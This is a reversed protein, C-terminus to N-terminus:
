GNDTMTSNLLTSGSLHDNSAAAVGDTVTSDTLLVTTESTDTLDINMETHLNGNAAIEAADQAPDGPTSNYTPNHSATAVSHGVSHGVFTFPQTSSGTSPAPVNSRSFVTPAVPAAADLDSEVSSKFFWESIVIDAPWREAILLKDVDSSYICLRFAQRDNFNIDNRRRRSKATFLSVIDIQMVDTIFDAMESVSVAASVNDICFVSKKRYAPKVATILRRDGIQDAGRNGDTASSSTVMKGVLLRKGRGHDRNHDSHVVSTSSQRLGVGSTSSRNGRTANVTANVTSQSTFQETLRYVPKGDQDVTRQRRRKRRSTAIQFGDEETSVNGDTPLRQVHSSLLPFSDTNSGHGVATNSAVADAWSQVVSSQQAKVVAPQRIHLEPLQGSQVQVPAQLQAQAQTQAHAQALTPFNLDTM